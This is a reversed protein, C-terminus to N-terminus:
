SMYVNNSYRFPVSTFNLFVTVEDEDEEEEDDDDEEDEDDDDEVDDDDEEEYVAPGRGGKAAKSDPRKPAAKSSKSNKPRSFRNDEEDEEEEDGEEAEEDGYALYEASMTPRRIAGAGAGAGSQQGSPNNIYRAAANGGTSYDNGLRAKRDRRMVEEEQKALAALTKEPRETILEYDRDRIRKSHFISVNLLLIFVHSQKLKDHSYKSERNKTSKRSKLLCVHM